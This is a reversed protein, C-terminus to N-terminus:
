ARRRRVLLASGCIWLIGITAPEPVETGTYVMFGPTDSVATFDFLYHTNELASEGDYTTASYGSTGTVYGAQGLDSLRYAITDARAVTGPTVEWVFGNNLLPTTGRSFSGAVSQLINGNAPDFRVLTNQDAGYISGDPGLAVNGTGIGTGTKTWLQSIAGTAPAYGYAVLTRVTPSNGFDGLIYFQNRSADVVPTYADGGSLTKNYFHNVSGTTRNIAYYHGVNAVIVSNGIVSARANGALLGTANWIRTGSTADMRFASFSGRGDGVYAVPLSTTPDPAIRVFAGSGEPINPVTYKTVGTAADVVTLSNIVNPSVLATTTYAILGSGYAITSSINTAPVTWNAVGTNLNFSALHPTSSDEVGIVANGVVLPSHFNAPASWTLTLTNPDLYSNAHGTSQADHQFSSWDDALTLPAILGAVLAFVAFCTRYM